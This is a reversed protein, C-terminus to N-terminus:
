KQFSQIHNLSYQNAAQDLAMLPIESLHSKVVTVFFGFICACFFNIKCFNFLVLDFVERRWHKNLILIPQHKIKTFYKKRHLQFNILEIETQIKLAFSYVLPFLIAPGEHSEVVNLLTDSLLAIITLASFALKFYLNLFM